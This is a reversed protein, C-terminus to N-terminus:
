HLNTEAIKILLCFGHLNTDGPLASEAHLMDIRDLIDGADFDNSERAPILCGGFLHGLLVLDRMPGPIQALAQLLRAQFRHDQGRRRLHVGILRHLAELRALVHLHFDGHGIGQGIGLANQFRLLLGTQDGHGAMRAAEIRAVLPNVLADCGAIEFYLLHVHLGIEEPARVHVRGALRATPGIMQQPMVGAVRHIQKRILGAFVNGLAVCQFPRVM